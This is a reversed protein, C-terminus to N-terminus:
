PAAAPSPLIPFPKWFSTKEGKMVYTDLPFLYPHSLLTPDKSTRTISTWCASFYRRPATWFLLPEEAKAFQQFTLTPGFGRGVKALCM